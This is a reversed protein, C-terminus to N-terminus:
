RMANLDDLTWLVLVDVSSAEPVALAALGSWSETIITELDFFRKGTPSTLTIQAGDRHHALIETTGSGADVISFLWDSCGALRLCKRPHAVSWDLAADGWSAYGVRPKSADYVCYVLDSTDQYTRHVQCGMSPFSEVAKLWSPADKRVRIAAYRDFSPQLRGADDRWIFYTVGFNKRLYLTDETWLYCLDTLTNANPLPSPASWRSDHHMWCREGEDDTVICDGAVNFMLNTVLGGDRRLEPPHKLREIQNGQAVDFRALTGPEGNLM